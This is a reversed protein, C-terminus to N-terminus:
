SGCNLPFVLYSTNIYSADCPKPSKKPKIAKTSKLFIIKFIQLKM